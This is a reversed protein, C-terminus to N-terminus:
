TPFWSFTIIYVELRKTPMYDGERLKGRLVESPSAKLSVIVVTLQPDVTRRGRIICRVITTVNSNSTFFASHSAKSSMQSEGIIM